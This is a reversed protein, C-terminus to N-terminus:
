RVKIVEQVEDTTTCQLPFFYIGDDCSDAGRVAVTFVPSPLLKCNIAGDSPQRPIILRDHRFLM